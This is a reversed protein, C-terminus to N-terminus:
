CRIMEVDPVGREKVRVLDPERFYTALETKVMSQSAELITEVQRVPLGTDPGKVVLILQNGDNTITTKTRCDSSGWSGLIWNQQLGAGAPKELISKSAGDNTTPTPPNIKDWSNVAAAGLLGLAGIIAVVIATKNNQPTV